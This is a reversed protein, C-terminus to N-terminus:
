AVSLALKGAYIVYGQGDLVTKEEPLEGYARLMGGTASDWIGFHTLRNQRLGTFRIDATNWMSRNAPDSFTAQVRLYGGGSIEAKGIGGIGPSEYHMSVWGAVAIDSLWDHVQDDTFTGSSM